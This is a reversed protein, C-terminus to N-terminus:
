YWFGIDPEPARRDISVGKGELIRLLIQTDEVNLFGGLPIDQGRYCLFLKPPTFPHRPMDARIRAYRRPMTWEAEKTRRGRELTLNGPSISLVERLQCSRATYYIGAALAVLEIGAFPMVVWAGALAMGTAIILSLTFLLAWVRVNGRWSLSQNPTLLLRVGEESELHEVMPRVGCGYVGSHSTDITVTAQRLRLEFPVLVM